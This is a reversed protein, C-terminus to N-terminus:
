EFGLFKIGGSNPQAGIGAPTYGNPYQGYRAKYGEAVARDASDLAAKYETLAKKYEPGSQSRQLSAEANKLMELEQVAIAGLAGGTPSNRRMEQLGAFASRAKLTDIDAEANAADSGAITPFMGIIGTSRNIGRDNALVEDIKARTTANEGIAYAAARGEADALEQKKAEKEEQKGLIADRRLAISEEQYPTMQEKQAAELGAIRLKLGMDMTSPESLFAGSLSNLDGGSNKIADALFKRRDEVDQTELDLAKKDQYSAVGSGIVDALANLPSEPLVIGSVMETKRPASQTRLQEALMQRRKIESGTQPKFFEVM